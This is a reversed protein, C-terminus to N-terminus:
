ASIDLNGTRTELYKLLSELMNQDEGLNTSKEGTQSEYAAVVQQPPPPPPAFGAEDLGSRLESGNLMGDGDTDFDLFSSNLENGTVERIGESLTNYESESISNNSDSDVMSFVGLPDNSSGSSNGPPTPPQINSDQHPKYSSTASQQQYSISIMNLLNSTNGIIGVM